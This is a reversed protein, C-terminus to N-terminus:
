ELRKADVVHGRKDYRVVRHGAPLFPLLADFIRYDTGLSNALVLTPSAGPGTVSAALHIGNARVARM